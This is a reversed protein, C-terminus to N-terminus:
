FDVPLRNIFAVTLKNILNNVLQDVISKLFDNNIKKAMKGVRCTVVYVQLIIRIYEAFTHNTRAPFNKLIM